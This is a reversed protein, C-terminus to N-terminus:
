QFLVAAALFSFDESSKDKGDAALFGGFNKSSMDLKLKL